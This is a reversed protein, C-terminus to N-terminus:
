QAGAQYKRAVSMVTRFIYADNRPSRQNAESWHDYGLENFALNDAEGL